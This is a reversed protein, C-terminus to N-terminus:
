LRRSHWTLGVIITSREKENLVGACALADAWAISGEIDEEILAKDFSLSNNFVEMLRDTPKKFRGDWMKM